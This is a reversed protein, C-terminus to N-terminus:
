SHTYRIQTSIAPTGKFQVGRRFHLASPLGPTASFVKQSLEIKLEPFLENIYIHVYIYICIPAHVCLWQGVTKRSFGLGCLERHSFLNGPRVHLINLYGSHGWPSISKQSSNKRHM